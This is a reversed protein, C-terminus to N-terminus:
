ATGTGIENAAARLKPLLRLMLGIQTRILQLKPPMEDSVQELQEALARDDENAAEDVPERRELAGAIQQMAHQVREGSSRALPDQAYSDV